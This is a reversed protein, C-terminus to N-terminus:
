GRVGRWEASRTAPEVVVGYDDAAAAVSVFGALVDRLVAEVPREVPDGWGGGGSTVIRLRDGRRVVTSDSMPRVERVQGSAEILQAHGPRGPQGGVAGPAPFRINDLRLAVTAETALIEFERILGCGGRFKGPGGSDQHISYETIRLPFVTEMFEAPYNQQAIQYVADHGDAFPRAGWGVGIGDSCLFLGWDPDQGRIMCISYVASFALARTPDAQGLADLVCDQVRFLTQSRNGLPAPWHPRLISGERLHIEDFTNQAGHNLMLDPHEGLIWLSAVLEPVSDHMTFNIPGAAQDDSERFDLSIRGNEKKMTLRVKFPGTAGDTDITMESRYEGAPIRQGLEARIVENTQRDFEAFATEMVEGGFRTFLEELRTAGLQTAALMARWDGRIIEPFRSNRLLVRFLEDNLRGQDVIRVAPFIVGEHFIDRAEPSLSGPRLGGIDWFHGTMEAFAAIEGEWFFPAVVLFDPSHSVGGGSGYCDNYIFIDGPRMESPPYTAFVYQMLNGFTPAKTNVVVHGRSDLIGVFYDKKERLFPSMSTREIVVEMQKKASVLAGKIIQRQIPDLLSAPASQVHTQMV